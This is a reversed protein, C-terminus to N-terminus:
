VGTRGCGDDGVRGAQRLPYTHVALDHFVAKKMKNRQWPASGLRYLAWGSIHGGIPQRTETTRFFTRRADALRFNLFGPCIRGTRHFPLYPYAGYLEASEHRGDGKQNRMIVTYLVIARSHLFSKVPHMNRLAFAPRVMVRAEGEAPEALGGPTGRRCAPLPDRIGLHLLRAYGQVVRVAPHLGGSRPEGSLQHFGTRRGAIRGAGVPEGVSVSVRLYVVRVLRGPACPGPCDRTRSDDGAGRVASL